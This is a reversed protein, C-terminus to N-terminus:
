DDNYWESKKEYSAKLKAISRDLSDIADSIIEVDNKDLAPTNQIEQLSSSIVCRGKDLIKLTKAFQKQNENSFM